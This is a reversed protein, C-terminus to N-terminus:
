SSDHPWYRGSPTLFTLRSFGPSSVLRNIGQERMEPEDMGVIRDLVVLASPFRRNGFVSVNQNSFEIRSM